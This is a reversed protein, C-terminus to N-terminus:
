KSLEFNSFHHIKQQYLAPESYGHRRSSRPVTDPSRFTIIIVWRLQQQIAQKGSTDDDLQFMHWFICCQNLNFRYDSLSSKTYRFNVKATVPYDNNKSGSPPNWFTVRTTTTTTTTILERFIGLAKKIRLLAWCCKAYVNTSMNGVSRGDWIKLQHLATM